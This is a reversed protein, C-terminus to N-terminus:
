TKNKKYKKSNYIKVKEPNRRRWELQSKYAKKYCVKCLYTKTKKGCRPCRGQARMKNMWKKQGTIKEM